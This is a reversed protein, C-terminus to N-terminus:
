SADRLFGHIFKNTDTEPVNSIVKVLVIIKTGPGAPGM